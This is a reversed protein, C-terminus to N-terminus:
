SGNATQGTLYPMPEVLEFGPTEEVFHRLWYAHGAGYLVVIRDGPKAVHVINAFILANRAYWGYNLAAGAPDGPESLDFLGYYFGDHGARIKDPDNHRALLQSVTETAQAAEQAKADAQIDGIMANLRDTKGTREALAQVRDFPFFDLAGENEDIAYVRDIGAENALRYGIQIVENRNEALKAPTFAKYGESLLDEDRWTSEVAVATPQFTRLRGMLAEIEAQRQPALVDDVQTNVVDHGPNDFHYTGLVMVQVVDRKVEPAPAVTTCGSLVLGALAAFFKRSM